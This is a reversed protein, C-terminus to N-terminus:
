HQWGDGVVHGRLRCIGDRLRSKLTPAPVTLQAAAESITLGEYYVLQVAERQLRTLCPLAARVNEHDVLRLVTEVTDDIDVNGSRALDGSERSRRASTRRILDIARHRVIQSLWPLARGLRPDYRHANRWAELLVEQVVEDADDVNNLVYRAHLRLLGRVEQALLEFSAEDGHGAAVLLGAWRQERSIGHGRSIGPEDRVDTGAPTTRTRTSAPERM